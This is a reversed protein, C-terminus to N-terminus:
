IYQIKVDNAFPIIYGPAPPSNVGHLTIVIEAQDMDIAVLTMTKKEHKALYGCYCGPM